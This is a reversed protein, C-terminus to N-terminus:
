PHQSSHPDGSDMQKLREESIIKAVYRNGGFAISTTGEDDIQMNQSFHRQVLDSRLMSLHGYPNPDRNRRMSSPSLPSPHYLYGTEEHLYLSNPKFPCSQTGAWTLNGLVFTLDSYRRQPMNYLLGGILDQYVIPTTECQIFNREVGCPSVFPYGEPANDARRVKRVRTFFFDLFDEDRYRAQLLFM